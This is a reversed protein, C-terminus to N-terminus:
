KDERNVALWRELFYTKASDAGWSQVKEAFPEATIWRLWEPDHPSMLDRVETSLARADAFHIEAADNAYELIGFRTKVADMIRTEISSIPTMGGCAVWLSRKFPTAIDGIYAEAADHLLALKALRRPVNHSVLVSHQAVSYHACRVHGTFRCLRSLAHAIDEIFVEEPRPDLPYFRGGTYVQIWDGNRTM